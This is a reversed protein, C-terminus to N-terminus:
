DTYAIYEFRFDDFRVFRGGFTGKVQQLITEKTETGKPFVGKVTMSFHTHGYNRIRLKDPQDRGDYMADFLDKEAKWARQEAEYSERNAEYRKKDEEIQEDYADWDCEPCYEKPTTCYSCPPNIHCSCSGDKEHEDISGTCGNRNCTEGKLYGLQQNSM